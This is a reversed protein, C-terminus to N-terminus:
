SILFKQLNHGYFSKNFWAKARLDRHCGSRALDSIELSLMSALSITSYV